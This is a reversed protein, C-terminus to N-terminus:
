SGIKREQQEAVVEISYEVVTLIVSKVTPSCSKFELLKVALPGHQRIPESIAAHIFSQTAVEVGSFDLVVPQRAALSPAIYETRIRRAVDKNEAFQGALAAMEVRVKKPRNSM